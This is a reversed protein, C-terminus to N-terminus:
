LITIEVLLTKNGLEKIERVIIEKGEYEKLDEGLEKLLEKSNEIQVFQYNSTEIWSNNYVSIIVDTYILTEINEKGDISFIGM